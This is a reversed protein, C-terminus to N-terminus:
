SGALSRVLRDYFALGGLFDKTRIREDRGHARVDGVDIFVGSAGFTPIGASRLYRGDTAGLELVPMVAVGPWLRSAVAEVAQLVGRNLDSAPATEAEIAQWGVEVKDDAVAKRVGDLVDAPDHGPLIRCNLVARARQPLANPAHGAELLTPVCTTRLLANWGPNEALRAIAAPDATGAAAARLDAAAQGSELGATRELQARTLPSLMVPFRFAALRELAGALEYIANDPRPLSGHGGPNTTELRMATAKKEAAAFAVVYPTGNKSQFDGGDTNLCYEADVLDRRRELLWAVGNAAGGEEDATLAVIVDRAPAWREQKWRVLNAVLLAAGDKIDQTGRGYLYGGREVLRFPPLDASWDEARAEVVDLHALLLIPRAKGNGRLRAVLNMKRPSPGVVQVDERPFGASLLRQEIARAAPTSGVGSETSPIEVLERLIDRAMQEVPTLPSEARGSSAALLSGLFLVVLHSPPRM